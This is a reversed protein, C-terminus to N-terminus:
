GGVDDLQQVRCRGGVLGGAAGLAAAAGLALQLDVLVRVGALDDLGAAAVLLRQLLPLILVTGLGHFPPQHPGLVLISFLRDAM